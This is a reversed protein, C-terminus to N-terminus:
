PTTTAVSVSGVRLTLDAHWERADGQELSLNSVALNFPAHEIAGITRMVADFSGAATLALTLVPQKSVTGASVSLVEVSAGQRRGREELGGIFSVVGSEPVFYSRVTAEDGAIRALAARASAVRSMVEAQAAIRNQLDAAAASKAAVAAYEVSYGILMVVCLAFAAVLRFLSTKM